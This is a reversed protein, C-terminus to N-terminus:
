ASKKYIRSLHTTVKSMFSQRSAIDNRHSSPYFLLLCGQSLAGKEYFIPYTNVCVEPSIDYVRMDMDVLAEKFPLKELNLVRGEKLRDTTSCVVLAQSRDGEKAPRIIAIGEIPLVTQASSVIQSVIEATNLGSSVLQSIKVFFNLPTKFPRENKADKGDQKVEKEVHKDKKVDQVSEFTEDTRKKEVNLVAKSIAKAKEINPQTDSVNNLFDQYTTPLDDFNEVKKPMQSKEFLWSNSDSDFYPKSDNKKKELMWFPALNGLGARGQARMEPTVFAWGQQKVPEWTGEPNGFEKCPVRDLPVELKTKKLVGVSDIAEYDPSKEKEAAELASKNTKGAATAAAAVAAAAAEAADAEVSSKAKASANKSIASNKSAGKGNSTGSKGNITDGSSEVDEDKAGHGRTKNKGNVGSSNIANDSSETDDNSAGDINSTKGKGNAGGHIADSKSGEGDSSSHSRGSSSSGSGSVGTHTKGAVGEGAIANANATKKNAEREARVKAGIMKSKAIREAAVPNDQAFLIGKEADPKFKSQGKEKGKQFHLEPHSSVMKWKESELDFSPRQGTFMWFDKKHDLSLPKGDEGFPYWAWQEEGDGNAGIMEWAGSDPDPGETEVAWRSGVKKPPTAKVMWTDEAIVEESCHFSPGKVIVMGQGSTGKNQGSSMVIKEAENMKEIHRQVQALLRSTKFVLGSPAIKNNVFESVGRNVLSDQLKKNEKVSVAILRHIGDRRELALAKCIQMCGIIDSDEIISTIIVCPLGQTAKKIAEDVNELIVLPESRKSKFMDVAQVLVPLKPNILVISLSEPQKEASQPPQEPPKQEM